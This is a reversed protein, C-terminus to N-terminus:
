AGGGRVKLDIDRVWKLVRQNTWVVADTNQTECRARREQLAKHPSLPITAPVLPVDPDCKSHSDLSGKPVEIHKDLSSWVCSSPGTGRSSLRREPFCPSAAEPPASFLLTPQFLGVTSGQETDGM